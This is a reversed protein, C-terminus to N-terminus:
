SEVQSKGPEGRGGPTSALVVLILKRRGGLYNAQGRTQYDYEEDQAYKVSFARLIIIQTYHSELWENGCAHLTAYSKTTCRNVDIPISPIRSFLALKCQSSYSFPTIGIPLRPFPSPEM